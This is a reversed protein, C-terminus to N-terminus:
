RWLRSSIEAWLSRFARAAHTRPAIAGLPARDLSMREIISASPIDTDLMAAWESHLSTAIQRQLMRRRDLMSIYPLVLPPDDWSRLFGTLQHLTRASLPTAVTPVLLADAAGFVSESALSISPPCDLLAVDYRDAIPRLLRALREVPHKVDDLVVDLNRLSFDAAVDVAGVETRRIHTGLDGKSGILRDAGGKLKPKARLLYSAAGQPDLDWVLVRAGSAAAEFALNVASTTKGVGGKISYTALVKM